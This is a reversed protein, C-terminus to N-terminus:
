PPQEGKWELNGRGRELHGLLRHPCSYLLFTKEKNVAEPHKMWKIGITRAEPWDGDWIGLKPDFEMFEEGNLAYKAMPVSVNDPGLECGLLGQLTYSDRDGFVKLAELFLKEKDRLDTTEKEWYWSVQSEWVWAGYPEAQARLNNYSLYQQPGLWGSVWFAPTGSAPNSVATFHYLLSRHSEAARLTGPLLLLLLALGWPQSRPVRMRLPLGPAPPPAHNRRVGAGGRGWEGLDPGALGGRLRPPQARDLFIVVIDEEDM